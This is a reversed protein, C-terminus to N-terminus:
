LLAFSIFKKLVGLGGNVLLNIHHILSSDFCHFVQPLVLFLLYQQLLLNRLHLLLNFLLSHGQLLLLLLFRTQHVQEISKLLLVQLSTSVMILRNLM